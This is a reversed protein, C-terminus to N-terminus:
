FFIAYFDLVCLISVLFVFTMKSLVFFHLNSFARSGPNDIAPAQPGPSRRWFVSWHPEFQRVPVSEWM